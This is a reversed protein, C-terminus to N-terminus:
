VAGPAGGGGLGARSTIAGVVAGCAGGSPNPASPSPAAAGSPAAGTHSPQSELFDEALSVLGIMTQYSERATAGWTVLGHHGWVMGLADPRAALAAACAKALKFGPTIYPLVIVKDGMVRGTLALGDPRNTLALIADAHTHDVFKHPLFAHLLTEVSPNPASPDILNERQVRVMDEDTLAPEAMVPTMVGSVRLTPQVGAGLHLDSAGQAITLEILGSLKQKYDAM